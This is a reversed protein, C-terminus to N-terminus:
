NTASKGQLHTGVVVTYKRQGKSLQFPGTKGKVRLRCNVLVTKTVPFSHYKIAVYKGTGKKESALTGTWQRGAGCKLRYTMDHSKNSTVKIKIKGYRPKKLTAEASKDMLVLSPKLKLPARDNGANPDNSTTISGGKPKTEVFYTREAKDLVAFDHAAGLRLICSVKETKEIGIHHTRTYGYLQGTAFKKPKISGYWKRDDSCNLSYKLSTPKGYTIMIFATGNRAPGKGDYDSDMLSLDGAPPPFTTDQIGAASAVSNVPDSPIAPDSTDPQAWGGGGPATCKLPLDEWDTSVGAPDLATLTAKLVTTETTSFWKKVEAQPVGDENLNAFVEFNETQSNGNGLQTLLNLKVPGVRNTKVRMLVRGKECQVGAKPQTYSHSFTSLFVKLYDVKMPALGGLDLTALETEAAACIVKITVMDTKVHTPKPISTFNDQNLLAGWKKKVNVGATLLLTYDFSYEKSPFGNHLGYTNCTNLIAEKYTPGGSYIKAYKLEDAAQIQFTQEFDVDRMLDKHHWIRYSGASGNECDTDAECKGLWFSVVNTFGPWKIDVVNKMKVDIKKTDITDWKKGDSSTVQMVSGGLISASFNFSKVEGTNSGTNLAQAPASFLFSVVLLAATGRILKLDTTVLEAVSGASKKISYAFLEKLM